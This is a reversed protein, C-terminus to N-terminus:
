RIGKKLYIDGSYASINIESSGSGIKGTMKEESDGMKITMPFDSEIGGYRSTLSYEGEFDDPLFLKIDGYQNEIKVEEPNSVMEVVIPESRNDIELLESDMGTLEIACYSTMSRWKGKINEAEVKSSRTHLEVDGSIDAFSVNSYSDDVLINGKIKKLYINGSRGKIHLIEFLENKIRSIKMTCYPADIKLGQTNNVFIEGSRGAIEASGNVSDVKINCYSGDVTLNGDVNKVDTEASRTEIDANGKIDNIYINSYMAYIHVPGDFRDIKINSSRSDLELHGGSGRITVDGYHNDLETINVCNNIVLENSRGDLKFEGELGSVSIEGYRFDTFLANRRPVMIKGTISKEKSFYFKGKFLDGIGWGADENTEDFKISILAGDERKKLQFEDIYIKEYDNDTSSVRVLLDFYISDRDWAEVKVDMGSVTLLEIDKGNKVPFYENIKKEEDAFVSGAFILAFLIMKITKM